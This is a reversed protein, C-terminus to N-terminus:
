ATASLPAPDPRWACPLSRRRPPRRTAARSRGEAFSTLGARCAPAEAAATCAPVPRWRGASRPRRGALALVRNSSGSGPRIPCNRPSLDLEAACNIAVLELGETAFQQLQARPANPRVSYTIRGSSNDPPGLPLAPVSNSAPNVPTERHRLPFPPSARQRVAIRWGIPVLIRVVRRFRREILRTRWADLVRGRLGILFTRVYNACSSRLRLRSYQLASPVVLNRTSTAPFAARSRWCLHGRRGRFPFRGRTSRRRLAFRRVSLRVPSGPRVRGAAQEVTPSAVRTLRGARWGTRIPCQSRPTFSM